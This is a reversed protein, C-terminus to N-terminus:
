SEEDKSIGMKRDLINNCLQDVYENGPDGSHGKIHQLKHGGRILLSVALARLNRLEAKGVRWLNNVQNVVLLSDCYINLGRVEEHGDAVLNDAQMLLGLLGMYEAFNNTHLEPGHYYSEDMYMEGDDDFIAWASACIGPNSM